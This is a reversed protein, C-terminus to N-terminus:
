ASAVAPSQSGVADGVAKGAGHGRGTCEQTFSQGTTRVIPAICSSQQWASVPTRPPEDTAPLDIARPIHYSKRQGM